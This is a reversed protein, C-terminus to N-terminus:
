SQKPTFTGKFTGTSFSKTKGVQCALEFNAVSGVQGLLNVPDVRYHVFIGASDVFEAVMNVIVFLNVQANYVTFEVFAARTYRDTWKLTRLEQITSLLM